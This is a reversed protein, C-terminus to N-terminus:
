RSTRASSCSVATGRKSSRRSSRCGGRTTDGASTRASSTRTASAASSTTASSSAATPSEGICTSITCSTDLHGAVIRDPELGEEELVDIAALGPHPPRPDLHLTVAAGTALAARAAGRLVKAEEAPIPMGSVGIEGIVGARVGDVGERIEREFLAALADASLERVSAPHLPEVYFGTGMVIAIGTAGSLRRLRQPDRGVGIPTVDVVTRGGAAAFRGLEDRAVDDDDLVLNDRTTSFPRTRLEALLSAEVARDDDGEFLARLDIFCHEHCITVGLETADLEGAVTVVPM